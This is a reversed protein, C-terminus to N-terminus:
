KKRILHLISRTDNWFIYQIKVDFYRARDISINLYLIVELGQMTSCRRSLRISRRNTAVPACTSLDLLSVLLLPAPVQFVVAM